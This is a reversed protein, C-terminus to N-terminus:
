RASLLCAEEIKSVAQIATSVISSGVGLVVLLAVTRAVYHRVDLETKAGGIALMLVNTFQRLLLSSLVALPIISMLSIWRLIYSADLSFASNRCSLIFYWSASMLSAAVILNKLIDFLDKLGYVTAEAQKSGYGAVLWKDLQSALEDDKPEQM